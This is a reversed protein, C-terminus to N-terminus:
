QPPVYVLTGNDNGICEALNLDAEVPDGDVPNLLARLVPVNDDGELSFTIDSASGSFGEGGWYFSGDNNGIYYDLDLRSEQPEGDADNCQAVLIHGDELEIDSSSEHFNVM